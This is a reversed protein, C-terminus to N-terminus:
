PIDKTKKLIGLGFNKYAQTAMPMKQLIRSQRLFRNM